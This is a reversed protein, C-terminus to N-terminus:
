KHLPLASPSRWNVKDRAGHLSLAFRRVGVGILFLVLCAGLLTLVAEPTVAAVETSGRAYHLLQIYLYPLVWTM